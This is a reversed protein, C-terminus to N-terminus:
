RHSKDIRDDNEQRRLLGSLFLVIGLAWIGIYVVTNSAGALGIISFIFGLHLRPDSLHLVISKRRKTLFIVTGFLLATLIYQGGKVYDSDLFVMFLGIISFLMGSLLYLVIWTNSFDTQKRTM